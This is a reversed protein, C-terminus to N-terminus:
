KLSEKAAQNAMRELVPSRPELRINLVALVKNITDLQVTEKGHELDFIVTKGVGALKALGAQSLGSLKRHQRIVEGLNFEIVAM